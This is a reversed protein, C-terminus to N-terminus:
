ITGMNMLIKKNQHFKNVTEELNNDGDLIKAQITDFIERQDHALIDINFQSSLGLAELAKKKSEAYVASYKADNRILNKNKEELIKLYEDRNQIEKDIQDPELNLASFKEISEDIRMQDRLTTIPNVSLNTLDTVFDGIEKQERFSMDPNSKGSLRELALKDIKM